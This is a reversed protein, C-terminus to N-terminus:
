LKLIKFNVEKDGFKAKFFYTGTAFQSININDELANITQSFLRRGEINYVIVENITTNSKLTVNNKTPNPYYSFDIFDNTNIGLSQLCTVTASWGADTVAQDSVFKFTLSGDTATSTVEGPSNTGTFGDGGNLEPYTDDPGNYVYM